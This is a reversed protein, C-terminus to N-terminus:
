PHATALSGNGGALTEQPGETGTPGHCTECRRTYVSKGATATSRGPPLGKGDPAIEIDIARLEDVTPPRGVGYTPSQDAGAAGAPVRSVIAALALTLVITIITPRRTTGM